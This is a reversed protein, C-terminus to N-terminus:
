NRNMEIFIFHAYIYIYKKKMINKDKYRKIKLYAIKYIM